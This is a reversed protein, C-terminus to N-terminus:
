QARRVSGPRSPATMTRCADPARHAVTCRGVRDKYARRGKPALDRTDTKLRVDWAELAFRLHEAEFRMLEVADM